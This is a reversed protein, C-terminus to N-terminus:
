NRQMWCRFPLNGSRATDNSIMLPETRAPMHYRMVRAGWSMEGGQLRLAWDAVIMEQTVAQNYAFAHALTLGLPFLVGIISNDFLKHLHCTIRSSCSTPRPPTSESKDGTM